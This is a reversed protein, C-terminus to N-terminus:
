RYHNTSYFVGYCKDFDRAHHHTFFWQKDIWFSSDFQAIANHFTLMDMNVSGHHYFDFLQLYPMSSVILQEWREANIYEEHYYTTLRLSKVYYFFQKILKELRDFRISDLELSVFKLHKLQFPSSVNPEFSYKEKVVTKISLYRLQPLHRLLDRIESFPYRGNIILYEIRCRLFGSVLSFLMKNPKTEYTIKFYKLKSLRSVRLFISFLCDVYGGISIILSRLNRLSSLRSCLKVLYEPTIKELILSRLRSFTLIKNLPCFMVEAVFPNSLRIASIRNKNKSVIDRVDNYKSISIASINIHMPLNLHIILSKFRNNLHYFGQYIDYMDVYEFIEYFIENSLDELCSRFM